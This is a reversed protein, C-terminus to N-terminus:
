SGPINCAMVRGSSSTGAQLRCQDLVISPREL